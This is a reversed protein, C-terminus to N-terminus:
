GGLEGTVEVTEGAVVEVDLEREPAGDRRIAKITVRYRGPTLTFTKPNSNASTYTRGQAVPKGSAADLVHVAADVLEAGVTAGVKLTGSAFRHELEVREGAVSVGEFRYTPKGSISVSAVEIDYTGAELRFVRPNTNSATYTRGAAVQKTTGAQLVRVTADGLDSNQHVLVSLEGTSFDLVKEVTEGDAVTIKFERQPGGNISVARAVVNYTGAPLPLIRPNTEAHTYTRGGAIDEGTDAHTVHVSVDVLEGDAIAKLSLASTAAEDQVEVARDLAASLEEANGADLYLGGGAQAACELSSVDEGQVDFGVVHLVIEVGAARADRVLKCPDGGCTELGDSVLILTAGESTGSRVLDIGQQLSATIPTKGKPNLGEVQATLAARDLPGPATLTEVDACDGERRHGYAILGVQTDDPLESILEGLVQRAIVIKNVGDIQGWMSGSADLILVLDDSHPTGAQAEARPALLTAFVLLGLILRSRFLSNHIM